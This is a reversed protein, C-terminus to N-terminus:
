TAIQAVDKLYIYIYKHKGPKEPIGEYKRKKITFNNIPIKKINIADEFEEAPMLIGHNKLKKIKSELRAAVNIGSSTLGYNGLELPGIYGSYLTQEETILNLGIRTKWPLNQIEIAMKLLAEANDAPTQKQVTVLFGDGMTQYVYGGNSHVIETVDGHFAKTLHISNEHNNEHFFRKYDVLDLILVGTPNTIPEMEQIYSVPTLKNCLAALDINLDPEHLCHILDHFKFHPHLNASQEKKFFDLPIFVAMDRSALLRIQQERQADASSNNLDLYYFYFLYLTMIGTTASEKFFYIPTNNKMDMPQIDFVEGKLTYEKSLHEKLKDSPDITLSEEYFKSYQAYLKKLTAFDVTVPSNCPYDKNVNFFSIDGWGKKGSKKMLLYKKEKEEDLKIGENNVPLSKISKVTDVIPILLIHTGCFRNAIEPLGDNLIKYM